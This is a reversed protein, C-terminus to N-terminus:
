ITEAVFAAVRPQDWEIRIMSGDLPEVRVARLCYAPVDSCQGTALAFVWGHGPCELQGDMVEGESLRWGAHPCADEYAVVGASTRVVVIGVCDNDLRVPQDYPLLDRDIDIHPM